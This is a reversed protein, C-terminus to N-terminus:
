KTNPFKNFILPIWKDVFKKRSSPYILTATYLFPPNINYDMYAKTYYVEGDYTYGSQVFYNDKSLDYVPSGNGIESTTWQHYLELEQDKCYMAYLRIQGTEDFFMPGGDDSEGKYNMFSPVSILGDGLRFQSCTMNSSIDQTSPMGSSMNETNEEEHSEAKPSTITGSLCSDSPIEEVSEARNTIDENSDKSVFFGIVGIILIGIVIWPLCTSSKKQIKTEAPTHNIINESSSTTIKITSERNQTRDIRKNLAWLRIQTANPRNQADACLCEQMLTNLQSSYGNISPMGAGNRQMSGGFGSFPLEGTALEYISVGLSWIDSATSLRPKSDFRKPAMYPMAGSNVDRKSQCRMTARLRKSIGFDTILFRGNSDILINDPKIDQHVIPDSQSHLVELGSAVDHIFAWLKDESIQGALKSSPGNECFKMVLFPRRNHVDFYEPTLLYPSSLGVSNAYERQFEEVGAPDLSLYIKLAVDRGTMQDHALWVEGFSGSGLFKVLMYRQKIIDGIILEEM